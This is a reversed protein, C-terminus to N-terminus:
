IYKGSVGDDHGRILSNAACNLGHNNRGSRQRRSM